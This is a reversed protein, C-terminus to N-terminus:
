SHIWSNNWWEVWGDIFEMLKEVRELGIYRAVKDRTSYRWEAFEITFRWRTWHEVQRVRNVESWRTEAEILKSLMKRHSKAKSAWSREKAMFRYLVRETDTLIEKAKTVAGPIEERIKPLEKLEDAEDNDLFHAEKGNWKREPMTRYGIYHMANGPDKDKATYEEYLDVQDAIDWLFQEKTKIASYAADVDSIRQRLVRTYQRLNDVYNEYAKKIRAETGSLCVTREQVMFRKVVPWYHWKPHETKLEALEEWKEKIEPMSMKGVGVWPEGKEVLDYCVREFEAAGKVESKLASLADLRVDEARAGERAYNRLMTGAHEYADKHGRIMKQLLNIRPSSWHIRTAVAVEIHRILHSKNLRRPLERVDGRNSERMLETFPIRQEGLHGSLEKLWLDPVYVPTPPEFPGSPLVGIGALFNPQAPWALVWWRALITFLIFLLLYLFKMKWQIIAPHLILPNGPPIHQANVRRPFLRGWGYQFRARTRQLLSPPSGPPVNPNAAPTPPVVTSTDSATDSAPSSPLDNSSM